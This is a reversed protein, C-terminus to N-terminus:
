NNQFFRGRLLHIIIVVRHESTLLDVKHALYRFYLSFRTLAFCDGVQNTVCRDSLDQTM